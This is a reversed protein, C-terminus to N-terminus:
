DMVIELPLADSGFEHRCHYVESLVPEVDPTDLKLDIGVVLRSDGKVFLESELDLAGVAVVRESLALM